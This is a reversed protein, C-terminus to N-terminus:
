CSSLSLGYECDLLVANATGRKLAPSAGAVMYEVTVKGNTYKGGYKTYPYYNRLSDAYSANRAHANDTYSAGFAVLASYFKAASATAAAAKTTTKKTTTTPKKATSKTTIKQKTTTTTRKTTAKKTTTKVTRKELGAAEAREEWLGNKMLGLEGTGGDYDRQVVHVPQDPLHLGLASPLVVAALLLASLFTPKLGSRRSPLM